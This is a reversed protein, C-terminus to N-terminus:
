SSIFFTFGTFTYHLIFLRSLTCFIHYSFFSVSELKFNYPSCKFTPFLFSSVPTLRINAFTYWILESQGLSGFFSFSFFSFLIAADQCFEGRLLQCYAVVNTIAGMGEREKERRKVNKVNNPHGRLQAKIQLGM